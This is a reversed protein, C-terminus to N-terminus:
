NYLRELLERMEAVSMDVYEDPAWSSAHWWGVWEDEYMQKQWHMHQLYFCYRRRYEWYTGYRKKYKNAWTVFRRETRHTPAVVFGRGVYHM